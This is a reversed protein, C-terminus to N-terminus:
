SRDELDAWALANGAKVDQAAVSGIVKDWASPPIGSLPRKLILDSATFVHGKKINHRAVIGRRMGEMNRAESAAPTKVGSGLAMETARLTIVLERMELPELSTPQDPGPMTKDLTFHKEIVCAGMAVAAICATSTQTHDSYGIRIGLEDRMTVMARLNADELASPYNTTCQLVILNHNGAGHVVEVANKVEAMTCMGTSLILPRGTAAAARLLSPEAAHISALKLAPVDLSVLFDIDEENYPTSMFVLGRARCEEMLKPYAREDLELARLMAIQSEGPDTTELQYPAKPAKPTVVREAKFTQFKVSDVAADHAAEVLKYALAVDGNHNVGAEAIVFVPEGPGVDRGGILIPQTSM